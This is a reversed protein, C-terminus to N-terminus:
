MLPQPNLCFTILTSVYRFPYTRDSCWPTHTWVSPSWHRCTGSPTLGTPVDLPTPEFLLHDTDVRVQLPLDQRYMLPHPNLCSTILTSVYRLPYTRDTCWPTHTWVSPSWHRCTGSPTLGTVVDLTTPEFLLHDIDVRVELPLDQWYMLPHPNLCTILTSVYRFPYTRDTCWPPSSLGRHTPQSSTM